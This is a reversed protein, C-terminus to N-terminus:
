DQRLAAAAFAIDQPRTIKINSASGEVLLPSAGSREIASAEDTILWGEKNAQAMADYLAGFRFVQPTQALWLQTRDLTQSVRGDEGALKVTDAVPLALLGGVDDEGLADRLTEVDTLDVCTRAADHVWVWDMPDAKGQLAQLGALVSDSREDGGVVTGIGASSALQLKEFYTDDSHLAVIVRELFGWGLLAELTWQLIPKGAVPLYQKPADAQMRKGIGAAPIVAWHRDLSAPM